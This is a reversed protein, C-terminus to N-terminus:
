RGRRERTPHTRTAVTVWEEHAALMRAHLSRLEDETVGALSVRLSELAARWDDYVTLDRTFPQDGVRELRIGRLVGTGTEDRRQVVLVRTFRGDPPTSLLLHSAAVDGPTPSNPRVDVNGFSGAAPDHRFTWGAASADSIEYTFPGQRIEGDIVEVPDRLADGLGLDPWWPRGDITALLVLHNLEPVARDEPKNWVQGFRREVAFGLDRLVLEFAGNHHFCYGANGGAAIRGLTQGPDTSDPRGLMIALNEYPITDLHRRHLDALAAVTPAPKERLGLRSLYRTIADRKKSNDPISRGPQTTATM